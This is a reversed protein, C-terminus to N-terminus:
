HNVLQSGKDALEDCAEWLVLAMDHSGEQGVHGPLEKLQAVEVLAENLPVHVVVM